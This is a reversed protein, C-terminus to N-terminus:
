GADNGEVAGLAVTLARALELAQAESLVVSADAGQRETAVVEVKRDPLYVLLSAAESRDLDRGDLQIILQRDV